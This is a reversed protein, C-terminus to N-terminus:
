NARAMTLVVRGFPRGEILYRLADSAEALPFTKAVIPKVRGSQLLPVITSWAEEWAAPPQAMLAFSRMTARKWILDTLDITAKRGASYGLTTYTAGAALTSLAESLIEGGIADIVIDAGYGDTIRRVGGSLTEGSLDIVEDFGLAKAQEAKNHNTTSSIAHKAGQARALQTVANGVSGGIAPALVTKGPQFGAEVLAIQATLYAVPVGAASGDDVGDPILCLHDKRVALWESYAGNEAVGYPGTFMVRSGAPFETGGGEEVVGAGENGLVLPAKAKYYQGSLITHDLPTVGAATMRVLVKGNSVEPKPINVLELDGYGNFGRARMARM